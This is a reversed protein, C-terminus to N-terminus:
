IYARSSLLPCLYVCGVPSGSVLSCINGCDGVYIELMLHDAVHRSHPYKFAVSIEMFLYIDDLM